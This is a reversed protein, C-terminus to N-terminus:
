STRMWALTARISGILGLAEDVLATRQPLTLGDDVRSVAQELAGFASDLDALASRMRALGPEGIGPLELAEHVAARLAEAQAVLQAAPAASQLGGAIGAVARDLHEAFAQLGQALQGPSPFPLVVVQQAATAINGRGDDATWTVTTAGPAFCSGAPADNSVMVPVSACSDTAWASSSVCRLAGPAPQFAIVDPPVVLTPPISDGVTVSLDATGAVGLADMM